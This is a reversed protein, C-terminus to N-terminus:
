AQKLKLLARAKAMRILHELYQYQEWEQEEELTLGSSRNKELLDSVRSQLAASPQLAMTEEPSPLRALFELVESAGEFGSQGVASWERLGLEIIKPLENRFPHLRIALEQPVEVQMSALM